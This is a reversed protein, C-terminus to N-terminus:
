RGLASILWRATALKPTISILIEESIYKQQLKTRGGGGGGGGFIQSLLTKFHHMRASDPALKWLIFCRLAARIRVKHFVRRNLAPGGDGARALTLENRPLTKQQRIHTWLTCASVTM